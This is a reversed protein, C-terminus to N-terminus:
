GISHWLDTHVPLQCAQVATHGSVVTAASRYQQERMLATNHLSCAARHASLSSQQSSTPQCTRFLFSPAPHGATSCCTTLRPQYTTRQWSQLGFKLCPASVRLVTSYRSTRGSVRRRPNRLAPVRGHQHPGTLACCHPVLLRDSVPLTQEKLLLSWTPVFAASSPPPTHDVQSCNRRSQVVYGGHLSGFM